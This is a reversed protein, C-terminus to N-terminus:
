SKQVHTESLKITKKGFILNYIAYNWITALAIVATRIEFVGYNKSFYKVALLSIIYNFVVLCSYMALQFGLIHMKKEHNEFTIFKQLIFAVALGFWYSIAVSKVPSFGLGIRLGYLVAMEMVYSSVGVILYRVLRNKLM